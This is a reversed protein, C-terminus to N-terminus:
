RNRRRRGTVGLAALALGVITLSSPEPVVNAAFSESSDIKFLVGSATPTGDFVVAPNYLSPFNLTGTFRETLTTGAVISLFAPNIYDFTLRVDFSGTGTVPQGVVPAATTFSGTNNTIRASAILIGDFLGAANGCLPGGTPAPGYCSVNNPNAQSGDGLRDFYIALQQDGVANLLDVDTGLQSANGFTATRSGDPNFSDSLVSENLRIVKTLEFGGAGSFNLGLPSVVVGGNRLEPVTTQTRFGVITGPTVLGGTLSFFGTALGSDTSDTALDFFTTYTSMGTPDFGVVNAANAVGACALAVGAALPTLSKYLKTILANM